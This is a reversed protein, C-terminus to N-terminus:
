LKYVERMKAELYNTYWSADFEGGLASRMLETPKRLSGHSWIREGLWSRVPALDGSAVAADVDFGEKMRAVLQAGYASGLAYSPFYGLQGGSWHSDQLVGRADDPVDVGLYQKYLANWREPLEKANLEGHLMARELEYRVMIHLSYTLEDAEIRSRFLM